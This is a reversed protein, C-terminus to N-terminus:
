PPCGLYFGWCFDRWALVTCGKASSFHVNFLFFFEFFFKVQLFLKGIIVDDADKFVTSFIVVVRDALAQVYMTEDDRYHIVADKQFSFAKKLDQQLVLSCFFIIACQMKQLLLKIQSKRKRNM